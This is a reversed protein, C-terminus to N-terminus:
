ICEKSTTSSRSSAYFGPYRKIMSSRRVGFHPLLVAHTWAWGYTRGYLLLAYLTRQPVVAIRQAHQRRGWTRLKRGELLIEGQKPQLAGSLLRLLTTKGSGNPGLLGVM